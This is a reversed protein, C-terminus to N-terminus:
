ECFDLPSAAAAARFVCQPLQGSAPVPHPTGAPEARMGPVAEAARGSHGPSMGASSQKSSENVALEAQELQAPRMLFGRRTLQLITDCAQAYLVAAKSAHEFAELYLASAEDTQSLTLMPRSGGSRFEGTGQMGIAADQRHAKLLISETGGQQEQQPEGDIRAPNTAILGPALPVEVGAPLIVGAGDLGNGAPASLVVETPESDHATQQGSGTYGGLGLQAAADPPIASSVVHSRLLTEVLQYARVLANGGQEAQQCASGVSSLADSREQRSRRGQHTAVYNLVQPSALTKSM